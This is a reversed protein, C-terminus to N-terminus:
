PKEEPEPEIKLEGSQEDVVVRLASERDLELSDQSREYAISQQANMAQDQPVIRGVSISDGQQFRYTTSKGPAVHKSSSAATHWTNDWSQMYHVKVTSETANTITVTRETKLASNFVQCGVLSTSILTFVVVAISSSFITIKAGRRM